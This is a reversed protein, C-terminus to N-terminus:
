RHVMGACMGGAVGRRDRRWTGQRHACRGDTSHGNQRLIGSCRCPKLTKNWIVSATGMEDYELKSSYSAKTHLTPPTSVKSRPLFTM